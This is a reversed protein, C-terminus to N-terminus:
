SAWVRWVIVGGVVWLVILGGFAVLMRLRPFTRAGSQARALQVRQKMRELLRKAWPLESSLIALGALTVPLGGPGPVPILMVGAALILGGVIITAWRKIVKV